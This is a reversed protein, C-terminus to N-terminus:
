IVGLCYYKICVIIDHKFKCDKRTCCFNGSFNRTICKNVMFDRCPKEM